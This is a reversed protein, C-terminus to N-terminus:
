VWGALFHELDNIKDRLEEVANTSGRYEYADGGPTLRMDKAVERAAFRLDDALKGIRGLPHGGV